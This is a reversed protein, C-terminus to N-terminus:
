GGKKNKLEILEKYLGDTKKVMTKVDFFSFASKKGELGM